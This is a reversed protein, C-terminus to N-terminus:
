VLRIAAIQAAHRSEHAGVFGIWQYLNMAGLRPHSQTLTELAWGDADRLAAELSARSAELRAWAEDATLGGTPLSAEGAVRKQRRDKLGAIDVTDLVSSESTERALGAAKAAAVDKAVMAGIRTEVIALHELIEAVSWQDAAPRTQRASPPVSAVAEALEARARALHNLLEQARPHM